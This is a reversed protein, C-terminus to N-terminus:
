APSGSTASLVCVPLEVEPQGPLLLWKLTVDNTTHARTGVKDTTTDLYKQQEQFIFVRDPNRQQLTNYRLRQTGRSDLFEM